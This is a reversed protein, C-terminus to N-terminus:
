ESRPRPDFERVGRRSLHTRIVPMLQVLRLAFLPVSLSIRFNLGREYM